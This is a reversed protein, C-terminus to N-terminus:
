EQDKKIIKEADTVTKNQNLHDRLMYLKAKIIVMTEELQKKEKTINDMEKHVGEVRKDADGKAIAGMFLSTMMKHGFEAEKASVCELLFNVDQLTLNQM